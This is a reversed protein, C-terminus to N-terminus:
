QRSATSKKKQLKAWALNNRALQNSPDLSVAMEGAAIAQDWDSMCNYAAMINNWADAYDPRLKLAERAADICLVYRGGQYLALSQNLYSEATAAGTVGPGTAQVPARTMTPAKALWGRAVSDSPFVALTAAAAASLDERDGLKAYIAMLLYHAEIFDPKLEIALSLNSIAEAERGTEHLWRAYFMKSEVSAPDLKISRLFHREAEADKHLAGNVIGLNIELAPYNPNFVLARSFFDLAVAYRGQVMQSLGYNMLGRGNTPSKRTVDLWLSEDTHWVINRQHAGWAACGLLLAGVGAFAARPAPHSYLWLAGAWCVGMALGVFPFFLRHDNEVEALAIWSTPVCAVLFWFLGFAIPRTERRRRCWLIAACSLLVFLIGCIAHIDLLSTYPRRDTDASLDVPLFFRRFYSLLVAPQSIRYNYASEAGGVFTAANMKLVFYALAGTVTFAPLCRVVAAFFDEEEFLWVWAFLLMPFVATTQKALLGAIVPLLYFGYRRQGPVFIYMALGALVALTSYLDARQFIYNITEAMAPHLGYLATAFLAAWVNRPDPRAADFIKRFLFFMLALQVLYWFFTSVHFWPPNLGHALWYDVAFSVLLLPRYSQNAPITDNTRADKFFLAANHLDRIYPNRVIAYTDDFHFSNRFHNAYTLTVLALLVCFAAAVQVGSPSSGGQATQVAGTAHVPLQAPRAKRPRPM